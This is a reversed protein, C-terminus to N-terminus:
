AHEEAQTITYGAATLRQALDPIHPLWWETSDGWDANDGAWEAIVTAAHEDIM